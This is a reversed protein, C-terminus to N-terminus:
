ATRRRGLLILAAGGLLLSLAWRAMIGTWDGTFALGGGGGTPPTVTTGGGGGTFETGCVQVDATASQDTEPLAATNTYTACGVAATKTLTYTLAVPGDAWSATGIQVVNAPDTKDDTVTVTAHSLQDQVLTVPVAATAAGVSTFAKAADWAVALTVTGTTAPATTFTCSWPVTVSGGAAVTVATGGTVACVAGGGLDTTATLDAVVPEWDNPNTATATGSLEYGSDAVGAPTATVTYTFAVKTGEVATVTTRDASKAITWLDDRDFSGAATGTLTLPLGASVSVTKTATQGTEALSAVNTYATTTGAVGSKSLSYTFSTPAQGWTATGLTVPHAPDTKDDVVTVTENTKSSPVFVVAATGTASGHPTHAAAADWTATATNTGDAPESTVTCTYDRTVTGSAPVVVATGNGVLCSAGGGSDVVDRLDATIPEWDNPNTLTIRGTVTWGDDTKGAPTATVTYTFTAADGSAVTASTKDVDKALNWLFTRHDTALATKSVALDSAVCVTVTKSASQGTETLVATNDYSSCTGALGTRTVSYTFTHAGDAHHWTGLTTPSAQSDTVTVTEHTEHAVAFSANQSASASSGPTSAGTWAVRGTVTGSSVPATFVCSYPKSVSGGAPVSVGAGGTVTCTGGLTTVVTLDATVAEWDNPNTATVLGTLAHSSDVVGNPTVKVSYTFTTSTGSAVEVRTKDADKSILWLDDRDKTATGTIGATLDKGVCVTVRASSTTTSGSDNAAASATNDFPTCTGAAGSRDVSYTYTTPNAATRADLTGLHGVVTDDISALEDTTSPTVIAFDVTATGSANTHPTFYTAADWTATATNTGFSPSPASAYTCSYALDLTGNAPVTASAGGTVACSGAGNDIADTVAVGSFPVPNPNTVTITGSVTWASDVHSNRVEVTYHSTGTGGTPITLSTKDVSKAVQWSYLRGFAAHATKSVSLDQAQKLFCETTANTHSGGTYFASTSTFVARFCTWGAAPAWAVDTAATYSAAGASTVPRVNGVQTGGSTCPTATAQAACAYFRVSGTVPHTGDGTLTATDNWTSNGASSAQTTLPVAQPTYDDVYTCTIAAGDTLNITAVAGNITSGSSCSLGGLTWPSPISTETLTYTGVPRTYTVSRPLTADNDDDLSFSTSGLTFTFDQADDPRANKVVTITGTQIRDVLDVTIVQDPQTVTVTRPPVGDHGPPVTSETLTYTGIPVPRIICTGAVTTCTAHDPATGPDPTLSFVAGDLPDGNSDTKNIRVAGCNSIDVAKPAIFDKLASNFADSSRSKLYASGYTKCGQNVPLLVSLDISAEGFTRPDLPGVAGGNTIASTNITGLADTSSLAAAPGWQSGTWFRKSITAVTGGNSLDYTLLLDGATRVPIIQASTSPDNKKVSSQNFEFDMNTTGSPDQVRTWFVNLFVQAPSPHEVYLGFSKLDSKNPPISGFEVDPVASDEKTGTTFSNDGSGSATDQTWNALAGPSLWDTGGANDVTLNADTDIEFSSGALSAASAPTVAVVGYTAVVAVVAAVVGARTLPRTPKQHNGVARLSSLM